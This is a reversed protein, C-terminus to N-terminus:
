LTALFALLHQNTAEPQEQQVWHGARAVEHKGRLDAYHSDMLDHLRRGPVFHMVEDLAGTIFLAPQEIRADALDEATQFDLVGNRYRHLPGAFGSRRFQEVYYELDAASLWAPLQEPYPMADLLTAREEGGTLCGPQGDASLNVYLKRLSLAIDAEFEAEAVGPTQFYLQYFFQGAYIKRFTDLLPAPGRGLYPVSMGVVAQVRSRHRLAARWVIPAGWDHGILIAQEEGLASIVDVVDNALAELSYAAIETPHDSGGYGRVDLAAIRYGAATLAAIQHRWSYWSEPFGHVLVCLPGEGEVRVRLSVDRTQIRQFPERESM